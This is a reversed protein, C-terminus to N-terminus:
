KKKGSMYLNVGDTADSDTKPDYLIVKFTKPNAGEIVYFKQNRDVYFVHQDDKGYSRELPQYTDPNAGPIVQDDLYVHSKDRSYSEQDLLKFTDPDAGEIKKTLVYVDKGNTWYSSSLARAKNGANDAIKKDFFYVGNKDAYLNTGEGSATKLNQFTEANAGQLIKNEFYVNKNDRYYTRGEDVARFSQPDAGDIIIGRFYVHKDDKARLKFEENLVEFTKGNAQIPEGEYYVKGDKTFYGSSSIGLLNNKLLRPYGLISAGMLPVILTVILFYKPDLGWFTSNFLFFLLGFVAPYFVVTLAMLIVKQNDTSGPADFAM